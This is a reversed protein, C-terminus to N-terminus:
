NTALRGIGTEEKQAKQTYVMYIQEVVTTALLEDGGLESDL